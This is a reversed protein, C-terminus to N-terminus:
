ATPKSMGLRRMIEIPEAGDATALVIGARWALKHAPNRDARLAQREAGGAPGLYLCADTRRM